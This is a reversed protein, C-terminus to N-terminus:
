DGYIKKLSEYYQRSTPHDSTLEEERSRPANNSLRRAYRDRQVELKAGASLAMVTGLREAELEQSYNLDHLRVQRVSDMIQAANRNKPAVKSEETGLLAQGWDRLDERKGAGLRAAYHDRQIHALEHGATFMIEDDKPNGRLSDYNFYITDSTAFANFRTMGNKKEKVPDKPPGYLKVQVPEDPYLSLARIREVLRTVRSEANRDNVPLYNWEMFADVDASSERAAWKAQEHEIRELISPELAEREQRIIQAPVNGAPSPVSSTQVSAALLLSREFLERSRAADMEAKAKSWAEYEGKFEAFIKAMLRQKEELTATTMKEALEKELRTRKSQYDRAAQERRHQAQNFIDTQRMQLDHSKRYAINAEQFARWGNAADSDAAGPTNAAVHPQIKEPNAPAAPTASYGQRPRLDVVKPDNPPDIATKGNAGGGTGFFSTGQPLVDAADGLKLPLTSSSDTKISLGGMDGDFGGGPLKLQSSLRDHREQNQRAEEALRQQEAVMAQRAAVEAEKKEREEDQPNGFLMEHIAEGLMGTGQVRPDGGKKQFRAPCNAEHEARIRQIYAQDRSRGEGYVRGCYPCSAGFATATILLAALTLTAIHAAKPIPNRM